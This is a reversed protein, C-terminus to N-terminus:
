ERSQPPWDSHRLYRDTPGWDCDSCKLPISAVGPCGIRYLMPEDSGTMEPFAIADYKVLFPACGEDLQARWTLPRNPSVLRVEISTALAVFQQRDLLSCVTFKQM